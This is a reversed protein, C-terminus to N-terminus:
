GCQDNMAGVRGCNGFTQHHLIRVIMLMDTNLLSAMDALSCYPALREGLEFGIPAGIICITMSITSRM